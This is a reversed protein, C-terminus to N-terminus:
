ATEEKARTPRNRSRLLRRREDEDLGGFVGFEERNALAEELCVGRSPCSACVAKAEARQEKLGFGEPFFLEPEVTRCAAADMWEPNRIPIVTM